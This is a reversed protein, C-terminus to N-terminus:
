ECRNRLNDYELRDVLQKMEREYEFESSEPYDLENERYELEGLAERVTRVLNRGSEETADADLEWWM